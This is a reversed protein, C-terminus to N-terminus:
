GVYVWRKKDKIRRLNKKRVFRILLPSLTTRPYYHGKEELAAKIAALAKPKKFFGDDILGTLLGAPGDNAAGSSQRRKAARPESKTPAGDFQSMLKAIEEPSGEITIITGSKTTLHAKAM